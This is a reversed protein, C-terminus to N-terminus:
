TWSEKKIEYILEHTDYKLNWVSTIDYPTQRERESESLIIIVLDMWTAASPVIKNKEMASYHEMIYVYWIKKIWEPLHGIFTLVNMPLCVFSYSFLPTPAPSMELGEGWSPHSSIGQFPPATLWRLQRHETWSGSISSLGLGWSSSLFVATIGEPGGGSPGRAM